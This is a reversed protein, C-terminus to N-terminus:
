FRINLRAAVEVAQDLRESVVGLVNGGFAFEPPAYSASLDIRARDGLGKGLGVLVSHQALEDDLAAMLSPSTPTPQSRTHFDVKFELDNEHQWRMGVTYVTLDNWEFRPSSSDGLLANFRAPLARSPFAGVQSYFVQSVAVTFLTHDGARMDLGMRVRSPIDLDASHGHVGRVTSLDDMDIRSQFTANMMLRPLLESAFGLQLGAGQSLERNAAFFDVPRFEGDYQALDLMSHSFQQSALVASVSVSNFDNVKGSLGSLLLSREFGPGGRDQQADPLAGFQLSRTIGSTLFSFRPPESRGVLPKAFDPLVVDHDFRLWNIEPVEVRQVYAMEPTLRQALYAEWPGLEFGALYWAMSSPLMMRATAYGANAPNVAGASALILLIISTRRLM